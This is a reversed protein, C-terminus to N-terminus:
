SGCVGWQNCYGASCSPCAAPGPTCYDPCSEGPELGGGCYEGVQSLPLCMGQNSGAYLCCLLWSDCPETTYTVDCDCGYGTCAPAPGYSPGGTGDGAINGSGGSADAIAQGGGADVSIDTTNSVTGGDVAVNGRNDGVAITNGVNGGSNIDGISVAGGQADATAIGGSGASASQGGACFGGSCISYGCCETDDGCRSGDYACCNLQGDYGFGNWDCYLATDAAYCEDDHRCTQGAV